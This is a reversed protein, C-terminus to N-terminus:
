DLGAPQLTRRLNLIVVALFVLSILPLSLLNLVDWSTLFLLSGASLSALAQTGFVMFDNAGQAKFRESPYYSRTLLVTAGVFLFNWGIGLLVLAAWYTAYINGMVSLAVCILM